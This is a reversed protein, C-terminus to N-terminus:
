TEGVLAYELVPEHADEGCSPMVASGSDIARYVIELRQGSARELLAVRTKKKSIRELDLFGYAAANSEGNQQRLLAEAIQAAKPFTARGRFYDLSLKGANIDDLLQGAAETPVRGYYIGHPLWAVVPAFRHGGLHSSRWVRAPDRAALERYLPLGFKACCRDRSGNTCVLLLDSVPRGEDRGSLTCRLPLKLIDSPSEWEFERIFPPQGDVSAHVVFLKKREVDRRESNRILVVANHAKEDDGIFDGVVDVLHRKVKEPLDSQKFAKEQWLGHDQILIWTRRLGVTGILPEQAASSHRACLSAEDM